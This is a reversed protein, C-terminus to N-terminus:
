VQMIIQDWCANPRRKRYRTELKDRDEGPSVMLAVWAIGIQRLQVGEAGEHLQVQMRTPLRAEGLAPPSGMDWGSTAGRLTM